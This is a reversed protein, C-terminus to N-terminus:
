RAPITVGDPSLKTGIRLKLRRQGSAGPPMTFNVQLVGAVLGPGGGAYSPEVETDDIVVMVPLKTLPLPAANPKGDIGAPTTAGDGTGYLTLVEGPAAPNATTVLEGNPRIVSAPGGGGSNQTYIGPSAASVPIPVQASARGEYEVTVAVSTLGEMSYPVMVSLQGASTVIMPGPTGDFLVRTGALRTTVFGRGDLQLTVPTAPGMNSGFITIMEGPAVGGDAGASRFSASNTVGAATFVPPPGVPPLVLNVTATGSRSTEAVSTARVTVTAENLFNAPATYLGTASITGIQPTISWTVATNTTGSVIATFQQTRGAMLSVSAPEVVVTVRSVLTVAAQGIKSGDAASIASITTSPSGTFEAPATYLGTQTITGLDPFMSWRVATNATNSVTATFQQSERAGLTVLAPSIVVSIESMLAVFGDTAGPAATALAGTSTPLNLSETSGAVWIRGRGDSAIGYIVDAGTGGYYTSFQFFNGGSSLRTLFGDNLGRPGSATLPGDNFLPFNASNTSGAIYAAGGGDVYIANGQEEADGGLYTGYILSRGAPDIKAAFADPLLGPGRQAANFSVPMNNSGTIGTLYANGASDITIGRGNESGDGGFYTSYILGTGDPALKAAFTDSSGRREKQYTLETVPFNDSRTEGTAFVAGTADVAVANVSDLAFGGLIVSYVWSSGDPAVKTIFGDGAGRAPLVDRATNPFDTSDTKGGVYAAGTRDIALGYGFDSASGGLYTSYILSAGNAALKLIFADTVGSGGALVQQPANPTVPFNTSGTQGAVFVAGTNDVAISSGLDAGTGGIYTAWVLATGSPNLKAVFVDQGGFTQGRTTGPFDISSTLGVVYTNGTADVAVGRAEDALAGGLYTGYTLVPDIVLERTRDYSEVAIGFSGGERKEFRAAVEQGGQRAVPKRWRLGNGLVLEGNADMSAALAFRIQGLDAGPKVVFDYELQRDTGYYVVDIDKYLEATRLRGFTSVGTRWESRDRGILYNVRTALPELPQIGGGNAGVWTLKATGAATALAMGNASVSVAYGNGRVRYAATGHQEFLVPLPRTEGAAALGSALAALQLISKTRMM